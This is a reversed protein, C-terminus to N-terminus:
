LPSFCSVFSTIREPQKTKQKDFPGQDMTCVLLACIFRLLGKPGLVLTSLGYLQVDADQVMTSLDYFLIGQCHVLQTVKNM